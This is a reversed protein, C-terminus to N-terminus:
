QDGGCMGLPYIYHHIDHSIVHTESVDGSEVWEVVGSVIVSGAINGVVVVLGHYLGASDGVEWIDFGFIGADPADVLAPDPVEDRGVLNVTEAEVGYLVNFFVEPGAEAAGSTNEGDTFDEMSVRSIDTRVLAINGGKDVEWHVVGDGVGVSAFDGELVEDVLM